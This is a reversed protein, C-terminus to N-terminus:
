RQGARADALAIEVPPGLFRPQTDLLVVDLVAAARAATERLRTRLGAAGGVPAADYAFADLGHRRALFVAREGHFRQSVVVFSQQGFVASARLVSDLTRFGAFDCHVREAPVGALVLAAKMATPEDYDARHNDGSVILARVKGAHFLAAAAEIRRRFYLNGRGDPLHESCGLVLGVRGEPVDRLEDFCRGAAARAVWAECLLLSAGLTVAGLATVWATRRTWKALSKRM